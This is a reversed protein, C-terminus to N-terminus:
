ICTKIDQASNQLKINLKADKQNTPYNFYTFIQQNNLNLSEYFRTVDRVSYHIYKYTFNISEPDYCTLMAGIDEAIKCFKMIIELFLTKKVFFEPYDHLDSGREFADKLCLLPIALEIPNHFINYM